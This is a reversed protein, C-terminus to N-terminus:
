RSLQEIRPAAGLLHQCLQLFGLGAVAGLGEAAQAGLGLGLGLGLAGPGEWDRRGPSQRRGAVGVGVSAPSPEGRAPVAAGM